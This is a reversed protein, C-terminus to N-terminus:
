STQRVVFPSDNTRNLKSVKFTFKFPRSAQSPVVLPKTNRLSDAIENEEAQLQSEEMIVHARRYAGYATQYARYASTAAELEQGKERMFREEITADMIRWMYDDEVTAAKQEERETQQEVVVQEAYTEMHRRQEQMERLETELAANELEMFRRLFPGIHMYAQRVKQYETKRKHGRYVSQVTLAHVTMMKTREAELYRVTDDRMLVKTKGPILNRENYVDEKPRLFNIIDTYSRAAPHLPKYREYFDLHTPRAPWGEKRITLTDLMGTYQLQNLVMGSEWINPLKKSNPKICRVFSCKCNKLTEDVLAHLSAKFNQGLSSPKGGKGEPDLHSWNCFLAGACAFASHAVADYQEGTLKDRNKDLWDTVDYIVDAAYHNVVFASGNYKRRSPVGFANDVDEGKVHWKQGKFKKTLSDLFKRDGKEGVNSPQKCVDDLTALISPKGQLMDVTNTNEVFNFDDKTLQGGNASTVGENQYQAIEVKFVCEVFHNQLKENCLNICFQEFSNMTKGPVLLHDEVFEFGFIDLVGMFTDSRSVTESLRGSFYEVITSFFSMTYLVPL